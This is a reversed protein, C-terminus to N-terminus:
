KKGEAFLARYCVEAAEASKNCRVSYFATNEIFRALLDLLRSAKQGDGPVYIQPLLSFLVEEKPMPTVINEESRSLFCVASLPTRANKNWGEKGAWPTGYAYPTNGIFRILPKDGNIVTVADGMREQWFAAHTSKGVGSRALFAVGRGEVELVVGHMLFGDYGVIREAIKRYIALSEAYDPMDRGCDEALIEEETASVCFDAAAEKALYDRCLLATYPHRNEICINLDALRVLM